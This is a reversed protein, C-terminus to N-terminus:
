KPAPHCNPNQEAVVDAGNECGPVPQGAPNHAAAEGAAGVTLLVALMAALLVKQSHRAVTDFALDQIPTM